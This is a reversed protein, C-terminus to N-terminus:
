FFENMCDSHSKLSKLVEIDSFLLRIIGNHKRISIYKGWSCGVIGMGLVWFCAYVAFVAFVAFGRLVIALGFLIFDLMCFVGRWDLGFGSVDM